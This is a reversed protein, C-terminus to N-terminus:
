VRERCSARGIKTEVTCTPKILEPAIEVAFVHVDDLAQVAVSVSEGPRRGNLIRVHQEFWPCCSWAYSEEIRIGLRHQEFRQRATLSIERVDDGFFMM